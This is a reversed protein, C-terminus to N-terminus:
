VFCICRFLVYVLFGLHFGIGILLFSVLKNALAVTATAQGGSGVLVQWQGKVRSWGGALGFSAKRVGVDEICGTITSWGGSIVSRVLDTDISDSKM